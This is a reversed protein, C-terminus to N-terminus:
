YFNLFIYEGLKEIKEKSQRRQEPTFSLAKLLQLRKMETNCHKLTKGDKSISRKAIGKDAYRIESYKPINSDNAM